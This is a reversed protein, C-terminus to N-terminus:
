YLEDIFVLLELISHSLVYKRVWSRAGDCGVVYKASFTEELGPTTRAKSAADYEDDSLLNSRFLGNTTATAAVSGVTAPTSEEESLHRLTVKIPYSSNSLDSSPDLVM